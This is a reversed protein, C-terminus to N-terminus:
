NTPPNITSEHISYKREEIKQYMRNIFDKLEIETLDKPTWNPKGYFHEIFFGCHKDKRKKSSGSFVLKVLGNAIELDTM